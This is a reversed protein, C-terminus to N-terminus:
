NRPFNGDTFNKRGGRLMELPWFIIHCKFFALAIRSELQVEQRTLNQKEQLTSPIFNLHSPTVFKSKGVIEHFIFEYFCSTEERSKGM